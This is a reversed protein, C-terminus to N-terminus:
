QKMCTQNVKSPGLQLVIGGGGGAGLAKERYNRRKKTGGM